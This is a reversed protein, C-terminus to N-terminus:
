RADRTAEFKVPQVYAPSTTFNAIAAEGVISGPPGDHTLRATGVKSRAVGMAATNASATQAAPISLNFTSVTAGATDYLTLAANLTMGTTNQLSYFTDFSGNTSWAPSFMTTESVRGTYAISTGLDNALRVRFLPNTGTATFSVRAAGTGEGPDIGTTDNVLLTSGGSCGDDGRFATLAGPPVNSGTANKFEVSYSGGIRLSAGFWLTAGAPIVSSTLRGDPVIVLAAACSSGITGVGQSYAIAANTAGSLNLFFTEPGELTPDISVVVGIPQTATGPPFTLTGSTAQYDIGAVATGDATAYNVTVTQSPNIPSLTVTFVATTGEVAAVDNVSLGPPNSNLITGVGQARGIPANTAGSLNVLFTKDADLIRDGIVPVTVTQMTTGPPFTLTGSRGLYDIGATATGNATAYNVTITGGSAVALSVTFVADTLGANGEPVAIDNISISPSTDFAWVQANEDTVYLGGNVVIPSELHIGGITNGDSWLQSGTAPDLALMGSYSAYYLIGNALIPSTGGTVNTWQVAISPNGNGDVMIKLGSISNYSACFVWVSSDSPNVWVALATLVGGGRPVDIKQIEGGVHGPAGNGSLNSLNLLRIKATTYPPTFPQKQSQVGLHAINSGPVPPLIAPSTSGLDADDDQLIQFETPTYSDVPLGGGSGTGDPHIALVSDGWDHGLTNADYVGNGTAFFILDLDPSYVVGARAWVASQVQTCDPQPQSCDGSGNERLHCALNSCDTNFVNQAGTALNIATVHGQYDGADGPPPTPYGGHSAYLFSAGGVTTVLSLASSGEEVNPKLTTLEPWTGGLETGDAVRYKHVKGDLAYAYVFQRNPDVAPSSTTFRPGTAPRQSWITAGTAADLALLHGGRTTLFLLDKVGLATSVGELFAPAGDAVSPLTVHYRVHLNSVNARDITTEQQNTGTHQGNLNFQLWDSAGARPPLTLM